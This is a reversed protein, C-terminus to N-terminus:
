KPAAMLQDMSGSKFLGAAPAVKRAAPRKTGGAGRAVLDVEGGFAVQGPGVDVVSGDVAQLTAAGSNVRLYTGSEDGNVVENTIVIEIDTGRIGIIATETEFVMRQQAAVKGSVYRLGGRIVRLAAHRKKIPGELELTKFRLMSNERLALRGGDDLRLMAEAGAASVFEDGQRLRTGVAVPLVAEGRQIQVGGTLAVVQAAQATGWGAIVLALSLWFLSANLGIAHSRM